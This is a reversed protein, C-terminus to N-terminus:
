TLPDIFIKEPPLYRSLQARLDQLWVKRIDAPFSRVGAQLPLEELFLPSDIRSRAMRRFFVDPLRFFGFSVDLIRGSDVHSFVQNFFSAYSDKYRDLAFIPDFCLRVTFGRDLAAQVAQLRKKLPPTRREYAQIVPDPALTFAVVWRPAPQHTLFWALGASKTRIEFTLQDLRALDPLLLDLLPLQHDLALLDADHSLAVYCPGEENLKSLAQLTDQVNVFLVLHASPYLGQLFCYACDFPCGLMLHALSFRAHGFSQCIQPGPYLFPERKVALILAQHNKQFVQDQRSRNFVDKYHRIPIVRSGSFRDLVQQALPHTAAAEELYIAPFPGTTLGSPKLTSM